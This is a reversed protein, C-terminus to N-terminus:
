RRVALLYGEGRIAKIIHSAAGAFSLKRRIRAIHIDVGRDLGDYEIGRVRRHLVDRSVVSGVNTALLFLIEFEAGTLPLARAEFSAERTGGDLVLGGVAIPDESTQGAPERRLLARVHALLVRPVIPKTIFDDTGVELGSVHDAQSRSATLMLIRGRYSPRVARCIAIGDAGPLMLDLIVVDPQEAPIREIARGGHHELDAALFHQALYAQLQAAFTRDDEVILLRAPAEDSARM